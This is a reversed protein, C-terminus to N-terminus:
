AARLQRRQYLDGILAETVRPDFQTGAHAVLERVAQEHPLPARYSGGGTMAHYTDCALIIRSGIPIEDGRLGDPHGSGDFREHEHRVIRAVDGLGPIARLIREGVLPVDRLAAREDPALLGPKHLLGDPVAVKGVDHLAAAIAVRETEAEDLGLVRCVRRASAVVARSHEGTYADRESLTSVLAEAIAHRVDAAPDPLSVIGGGVAVRSGGCSRARDLGAGADALLRELTAARRYDAVGASVTFAHGPADPRVELRDILTAALTMAGDADTGPLVATWEDPGTRSLVANPPLVAVLEERLVALVADGAAVGREGNLARFGDVDVVLVSLPDGNRRTRDLLLASAALLATIGPRDEM